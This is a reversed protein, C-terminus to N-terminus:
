METETARPELSIQPNQVAPPYPPPHQLLQIKISPNIMKVEKETVEMSVRCHGSLCLKCQTICRKCGTVCLQCLVICGGIIGVMCMGIIGIILLILVLAIFLAAVAGFFYVVFPVDQWGM